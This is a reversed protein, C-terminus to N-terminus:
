RILSVSGNSSKKIGEWTTYEIKFIYNGAPLLQGKYTGDWGKSEIGNSKHIREGWLNFILLDFETIGKMKPIFTDNLGDGNPTFANPIAMMEVPQTVNVANSEIISCGYIDTGILKVEFTGATKFKHVPDKEKSLTGDGFEWEWAIFEPSIESEFIIEEDIMVEPDSSFELKRYEFNLRSSQTNINPLTVQAQAEAECGLADAVKVRLTGSKNFEIEGEKLNANDLWTITYPELGGTIVVWARGTAAGTECNVEITSEIRAKIQTVEQVNVETSISCGSEDTIQVEYVGAKLNSRNSGASTDDKWSYSVKGKAGTVSLSIKGDNKGSCSVPIVDISSIKLQSQNSLTFQREVSCGSADTIKVAHVGAGLNEETAENGGSSWQYTFPAKGGSIKLTISGDKNGECTPQIIEEEITIPMPSALSFSTEVTCGNTDTVLVEYTGEGLGSIDKDASGNSWLYTYPATGGSITLNIKGDNGACTPQSTTGTIALVETPGKIEFTATVECFSDKVSVYYPGPALNERNLQNSGDSWLITLPGNGEGVTLKISGTNQGFCAVDVQSLVELKLSSQSTLNFQKEIVCGSADTIKVSYNGEPLNQLSSQNAGTNWLYTYPANGGTVTLKISGDEKGECTPETIQEAVEIESGSKVTYSAQFSCGKSDKILVQYNGSGVNALDKTTMGNSWKYTYPAEGGKVDLIIQGSNESTCSVDQISETVSLGESAAKIDFSISTECNFKDSVTAYYSGPALNDVEWVDKLGNSWTISYPARTEHYTKITIKAYGDQGSGCSADKKEVPNLILPYPPQILIQQTLVQGEADTIWVTYSGAYLNVRTPSTDNNNWKFKYPPVGGHVNLVISGREDDSCLALKGGVELWMAEYNATRASATKNTQGFSSNTGWYILFFSLISFLVARKM